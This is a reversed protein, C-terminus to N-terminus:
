YIQSGSGLATAIEPTTTLPSAVVVNGHRVWGIASSTLPDKVLASVYTEAKQSSEFVRVAVTANCTAVDGSVASGNCTIGGENLAALVVAPDGVTEPLGAKDSGGLAGAVVVAVAAAVVLVAGGVVIKVKNRSGDAKTAKKAEKGETAEVDDLEGADELEAPELNEVPLDQAPVRDLDPDLVPEVTQAAVVSSDVDAVADDVVAAKKRTSV